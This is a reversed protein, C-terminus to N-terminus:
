PQDEAQTQQSEDREETKPPRPAQKILSLTASPDKWPNGCTACSVATQQQLPWYHMAVACVGVFVATVVALRLVLVNRTM